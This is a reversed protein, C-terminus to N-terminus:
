KKINLEKYHEKCLDIRYLIGNIEVVRADDVVKGCIEFCEEKTNIKTRNIVRM